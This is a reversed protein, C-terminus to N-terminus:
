EIKKMLENSLTKPERFLIKNLHTTLEEVDIRNDGNKDVNSFWKEPSIMRVECKLKSIIPYLIEIAQNQMIYPHNLNGHSIM